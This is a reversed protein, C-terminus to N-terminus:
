WTYDPNDIWKDDLYNRIAVPKAYMKPAYGDGYFNHIPEVDDANYITPIHWGQWNDWYEANRTALRKAGLLTNAFGYFYSQYQGGIVAYKM